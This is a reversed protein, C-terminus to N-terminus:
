DSRCGRESLCILEPLIWAASANRGLTALMEMTEKDLRIEEDRLFSADASRLGRLLPESLIDKVDMYDLLDRAPDLSGNLASVSDDFEDRANGSPPTPRSTSFATASYASPFRTRWRPGRVYAM